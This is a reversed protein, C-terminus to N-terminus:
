ASVRFHNRIALYLLFCASLLLLGNRVFITEYFDPWHSGPSYLARNYLFPYILTTLLSIGCWSLLWKKNWGGVYAVFPTVWILYQASFVKGTVIVVLLTLLFSLALTIKQRWQLWYVFCLGALFLASDAQMMLPSFQSFVNRSGYSLAYQLPYGSISSIFWVISASVSEIQLPRQRFYSLPAITGEVNVVLSLITILVCTMGFIALPLYRHWTYWIGKIQRQQVILLPVLLVVPYFKIMTALALLFFARSWKARQAWLLAGFTCATPLLDFRGLATVFCGLALYVAFALAAGRSSISLLLLYLFAAICLLLFAFTEQYWALPTILALSFTLVALLPYEPPLVHYAATSSQTALFTVIPAPLRHRQASEILAEHAKAATQDSPHTLFECQQVPLESIAQTGNWFAFAYCQYRGEDSNLQQTFGILLIASLFLLILADSLSFRRAQLWIPLPYTPSSRVEEGDEAKHALSSIRTKM